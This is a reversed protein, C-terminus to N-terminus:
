GSVTYGRRKLDDMFTDLTEDSITLWITLFYRTAKFKVHDSCQMATCRSYTEWALRKIIEVKQDRSM